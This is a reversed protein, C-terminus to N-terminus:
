SQPASIVTLALIMAAVGFLAGGSYIALAAPLAAGLIMVAAATAGGFIMAFTLIGILV